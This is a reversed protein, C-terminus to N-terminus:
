AWWNSSAGGFKKLKRGGQLKHIKRNATKQFIRTPSFGGSVGGGRGVLSPWAILPTKKVKFPNLLGENSFIFLFFCKHAMEGQGRVYDNLLSLTRLSLAAFILYDSLSNIGAAKRPKFLNSNLNRSESSLIACCLIKFVIKGYDLLISNLVHTAM